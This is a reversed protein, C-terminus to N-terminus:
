RMGTDCDLTVAALHRRRILVTKSECRPYLGEVAVEIAYEGPPARLTFTGRPSTITSAIVTANNDLLRVTAGAYPSTCSPGPHQPGPCGPSLRVSGGIGTDPSVAEAVSCWLAAAGVFARAMEFARVGGQM